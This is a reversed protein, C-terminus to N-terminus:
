KKRSKESEKFLQESYKYANTSHELAQRSFEHAAKYDAKGHAEAAAAHAHAALNHLESARGHTSQPMINEKRTRHLGAPLRSPTNAPVRLFCKPEMRKASAAFFISGM